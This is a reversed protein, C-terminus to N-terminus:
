IQVVKYIYIYIDIECATVMLIRIKNVAACLFIITFEKFHYIYNLIYSINQSVLMAKDSEEFIMIMIIIMMMMMM